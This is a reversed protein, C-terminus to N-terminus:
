RCHVSVPPPPASPSPSRLPLPFPFPSLIQVLLRHAERPSPDLAEPAQHLSCESLPGPASAASPGAEPVKGPDPPEPGVTHPRCGPCVRSLPDLARCGRGARM